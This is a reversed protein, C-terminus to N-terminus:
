IVEFASHNECVPNCHLPTSLLGIRYAFGEAGICGPLTYVPGLDGEWIQDNECLLLQSCKLNKTDDCDSKLGFSEISSSRASTHSAAM